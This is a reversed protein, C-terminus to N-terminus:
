LLSLFGPHSPCVLWFLSWLASGALTSQCVKLSFPGFLGRGRHQTVPGAVLSPVLEISSPTM